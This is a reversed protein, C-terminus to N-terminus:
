GQIVNHVQHVYPEGLDIGLENLIPLLTKGFEDLQEQSEWIDFVHIGGEGELAVHYLRGPPAGAEVAELRNITEDYTERAFSTPTFYIGLAM